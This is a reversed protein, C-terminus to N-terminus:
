HRAKPRRRTLTDSALEEDVSALRRLLAAKEAALAHM